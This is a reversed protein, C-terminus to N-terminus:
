RWITLRRGKSHHAPLPLADSRAYRQASWAAVGADLLDDNIPAPVHIGIRGLLQQRESIGAATRKSHQLHGKALECFSVEPHVEIVRDEVVAELELIRWRMGYGQESWAWGLRQSERKADQKSESEIVARPPTKFVSAGRQPGVFARAKVDAERPTLNPLGIPIDVAVIEAAPFMWLFEAFTRRVVQRAFRGDETVVAMWLSKYADVGVVQM